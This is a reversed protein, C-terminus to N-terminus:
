SDVPYPAYSSRAANDYCNGKASLRSLVHNQNLLSQFARSAYQCGHNPGTIIRAAQGADLPLVVDVGHARGQIFVPVDSGSWRPCMM